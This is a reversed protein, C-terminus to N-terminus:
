LCRKNGKRVALAPLPRGLASSGRSRRTRSTCRWDFSRYVISFDITVAGSEDRVNIRLARQPQEVVPGVPMTPPFGGVSSVPAVPAPPYGPQGHQLSTATIDKYNVWIFSYLFSSLHPGGTSFYPIQGM